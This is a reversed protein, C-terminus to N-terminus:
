NCPVFLWDVQDCYDVMVKLNIVAFLGPSLPHLRKLVLQSPYVSRGFTM